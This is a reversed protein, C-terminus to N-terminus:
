SNFKAKPWIDQILRITLAEGIFTVLLFLLSAVLATQGDSVEDATLKSAIQELGDLSGDARVSVNKLFRADKKSAELARHLLSTFGAIGALKSLPNRLKECVKFAALREKGPGELGLLERALNFLHIPVPPRM